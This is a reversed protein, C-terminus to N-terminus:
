ATLNSAQMKSQLRRFASCFVFRDVDIEFPSRHDDTRRPANQGLRRTSLLEQWRM